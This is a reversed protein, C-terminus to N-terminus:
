KQGPQTEPAAPSIPTAKLIKIGSDNAENWCTLCAPLNQIRMHQEVELTVVAEESCQEWEPMGM